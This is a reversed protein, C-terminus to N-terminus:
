GHRMRPKHQQTTSSALLQETDSNFLVVRETTLQLGVTEGDVPRVDKSAVAKIRGMSCDLDLVWHSGFYEAYNVKAPMGDQRAVVRIHEPRVGMTVKQAAEQVTPVAVDLNGFSVHQDGKVVAKTTPLLNMSPRGIFSAVFM